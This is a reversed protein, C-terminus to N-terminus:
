QQENFPREAYGMELKYKAIQAEEETQSNVFAEKSHELQRFLTEFNRETSSHAFKWQEAQGTENMVKDQLRSNVEQMQQEYVNVKSCYAAAHMKTSEYEDHLRKLHLNKERLEVEARQRYDIMEISQEQAVSKEHNAQALEQRTRNCEDTLEQIRRRLKYVNDADNGPNPSAYTSFPNGFRPILPTSQELADISPNPYMAVARSGVEYQDTLALGYPSSAQGQPGSYACGGHSPALQWSSPATNM